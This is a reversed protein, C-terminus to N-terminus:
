PLHYCNANCSELHQLNLFLLFLTVYLILFAKELAIKSNDFFFLSQASKTPSIPFLNNSSQEDIPNHVGCRLMDRSVSIKDLWKQLIKIHVQEGIHSACSIAINEQSLNFLDHANSNIFPLAQFIKIASRPYILQNENNTSFLSNNFVDKVLVLAKHQSEVISGRYIFVSIPPM